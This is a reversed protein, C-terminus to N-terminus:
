FYLRSVTEAVCAPKTQGEVEITVERVMQLGGEVETVEKLVAKSRIRSNVKVPSPFRVKNLGYNVGLKVGPYASAGGSVERALSPILSLTLFGHAIAEKFPSEKKARDPDVHIWQHDDTADAFLNIRKQDVLLWEGVKVDTGVRSKLDAFVAQQSM